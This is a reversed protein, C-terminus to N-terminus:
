GKRKFANLTSYIWRLYRPVISFYSPEANVCTFRDTTVTVFSAIGYLFWRNRRAMMMPSGADGYCINSKNESEDQACYTFHEYIKCKPEGNMVRLQIQHLDPSVSEYNSWGTTSGWGAIVANKNFAFAENTNPPLCITSIKESLNLAKDLKLIAINDGVGRISFKSHSAVRKVGINNEPTLMEDLRHSGVVASLHKAQKNYVCNAATLVYQARILSGGCIHNKHTGNDFRISVVWPWSNANASVGSIIRNLHKIKISPRIAPVGCSHIMENYVSLNIGIVVILLNFLM